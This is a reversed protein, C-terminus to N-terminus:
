ARQTRHDSSALWAVFLLCLALLDVLGTVSWMLIGALQQDEIPTWPSWPPAVAHVAYLLKPAFILIAALMANQMAFTVLFIMVAGTSIRGSAPGGIVVRWFLISTLFFSLHELVHAAPHVFAVAYPKPQHWFWLAASVLLWAAAPSRVLDNLPRLARSGLWWAALAHRPARPLAWLAV